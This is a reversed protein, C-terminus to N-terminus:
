GEEETTTDYVAAYWGNYVADAAEETCRAKVLGNDPRKRAQFNLTTTQPEISDEVTGGEETPRSASCYYIVHRIAKVDGDFEFLLAFKKYGKANGDEFQVGNAVTEALVETRFEDPILAMELEGDYGNNVPVNFYVGDDAYFEAPDGQAELSLNVAGKWPVPTGFTLKGDEGITIIAYHVNKLGYRVKNKQPM